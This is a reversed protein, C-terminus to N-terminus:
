LSGNGPQISLIAAAAASYKNTPSPIMLYNRPFRSKTASVTGTSLTTAVIM